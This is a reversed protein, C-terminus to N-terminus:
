IRRKTLEKCLSYYINWSRCCPEVIPMYGNEKMENEDIGNVQVMFDAIHPPTFVQGAKDNNMSLTNFIPGMIDVIETQEQYLLALEKILKFIELQEDENYKELLRKFEKEYDKNMLLTANLFYTILEIVDSFITKASYKGGTFNLKKIFSKIEESIVKYNM